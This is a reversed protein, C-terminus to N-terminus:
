PNGGPLEPLDPLEPFDTPLDTPFDTPFNTPFDTPFGSPLDTPFSPLDTPFGSPVDSPDPVAPRTPTEGPIAPIGGPLTPLEPDAFGGVDIVVAAVLLLGGIAAAIRLMRVQGSVTEDARAGADKVDDM